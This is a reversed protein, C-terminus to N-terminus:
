MAKIEDLLKQALGQIKSTEKLALQYTKEAAKLAEAKYGMDQCAKAYTSQNSYEEPNIEAARKAMKYAQELVQRNKGTIYSSRRAIFGLGMDDNKMPGELASDTLKVFGAINGSTLYYEAELQFAKKQLEQEPSQKWPALRTFFATSDKKRILGYLASSILREHMKKVPEEGFKGAYADRHQVFYAGLRDTESWTFQQITRWGLETLLDGDKLQVILLQGVSDAKQRNFYQLAIAYELLVENSRNGDNFKKELATFSRKPDLAKRAEDMFKDAEMRSTAKHVVEGKGNLFLYTPYVKVGYRKNLAPGEGKEMDMKYNVFRANYFAAVTDNVFVNKEMWKCPACWSTYCDMFILKGTKASEALVAKFEGQSNFRIGEQAQASAFICVSLIASLSLTKLSQNM